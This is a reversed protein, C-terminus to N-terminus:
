FPPDTLLKSDSTKAPVASTAPAVVRPKASAASRRPRPPEVSSPVSAAVTAPPADIPPPSSPAVEPVSRIDITAIPASSAVSLTVSTRKAWRWTGAGALAVVGLLAVGGFAVRTVMPRRAPVEVAPAAKDLVLSAVIERAAKASQPRGARDSSLLRGVFSALDPPLEPVKREIPVIAGTALVKLVQGLTAGDAPREGALAEYLIVGVAWLDTRADVEGDGFAQEPAMYCPTGLMAGSETLLNTARAPGDTATLKAVGFDLIKISPPGGNGDDALFVNDPKLDRHVIGAGHAAELADLMADVIRLADKVSLTKDRALREGLSEGRLLDMVLVPRGEVDEIVDLVNVVNPHRVAAAARAERLMRKQTAERRQTDAAERPSPAHVFKLAHERATLTHKAAWVAGMGGEGLKRELVYRGAIVDGPSLGSRADM